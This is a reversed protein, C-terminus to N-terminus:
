QGRDRDSRDGWRDVARGMHMPNMIAHLAGPQAHWAGVGAILFLASFEILMFIGTIYENARINLLALLAVVAVTVLTIENASLPIGFPM